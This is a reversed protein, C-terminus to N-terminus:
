TTTVSGPLPPARGAVRHCIDCDHFILRHPAVVHTKGVVSSRVDRRLFAVVIGAVLRMESLRRLCSLTTLGVVVACLAVIVGGFAVSGGFLDGLDDVPQGAVIADCGEMACLVLTSAFVAAIL